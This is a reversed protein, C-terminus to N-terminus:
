KKRQSRFPKLEYLADIRDKLIVKGAHRRLKFSATYM